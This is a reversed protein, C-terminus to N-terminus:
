TSSVPTSLERLRVCARDLVAISAPDLGSMLHSVRERYHVLAAQFAQRGRDTIRIAPARRDPRLRERQILGSVELRGLLVSVTPKPVGLAAAIEAPAVTGPERRVVLALLRFGAETLDKRALERRLAQGVTHCTALLDLLVHCRKEEVASRDRAAGLLAEGAPDCMSSSTMGAVM